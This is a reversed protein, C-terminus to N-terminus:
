SWSKSEFTSSGMTFASLSNKAMILFTQSRVVKMINTYYCYIMEIADLVPYQNRQGLFLVLPCAGCFSAGIQLLDTRTWILPHHHHNRIPRTRNKHHHRRKTLHLLPFPIWSSFWLEKAVGTVDWYIWEIGNMYQNCQFFLSFFYWFCSKTNMMWIYNPM